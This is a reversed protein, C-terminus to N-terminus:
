QGSTTQDVHSILNILEFSSVDTADISRDDFFNDLSGDTSLDNRVAISDQEPLNLSYADVLQSELVYLDFLCRHAEPWCRWLLFFSYPLSLVCELFFLISTTNFLSSLQFLPTLIRGAIAPSETRRM